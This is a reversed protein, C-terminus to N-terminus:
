PIEQEIPAGDYSCGQCETHDFISGLEWCQNETDWEAWADKVIQDSGCQSCVFKIRRPTESTM